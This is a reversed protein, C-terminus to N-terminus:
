NFLKLEYSQVQVNLALKLDRIFMAECLKRRRWHHYNRALIKFNKNRAKAHKTQEAHQYIASLKDTHGHEHVRIERRRDTEGSYDQKCKEFRNCKYYYIFGSTHKDAVKDKVRFFTSLKKGKVSIEPAVTNPLIRELTRKFKKIVQNGKEGGYPLSMHPRDVNEEVTEEGSSGNEEGPAEAEEISPQHKM